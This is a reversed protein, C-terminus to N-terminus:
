WWPSGRPVWSVEVIWLKASSRSSAGGMEQVPFLMCTPLTTRDTHQHDDIEDIARGALFGCGGFHSVVDFGSLGGGSYAFNFVLHSRSGLVCYVRHGECPLGGDRVHARGPFVDPRRPVERGPPVHLFFSSTGFVIALSSTSRLRSLVDTQVPLWVGQPYAFQVLFFYEVFFPSRVQGFVPGCAAFRPM